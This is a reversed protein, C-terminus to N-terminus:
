NSRFFVFLTRTIPVNPVGFVRAKSSNFYDDSVSLEQCENFSTNKFVYKKISEKDWSLEQEFIPSAVSDPNTLEQPIWYQEGKERMEFFMLSKTKEDVTKLIDKAEAEPKANFMTHFVNLFLTIDYQDYLHLDLSVDGTSLDDAIKPYLSKADEINKYNKDFGKVSACKSSFFDVFYGTGCGIDLMTKKKLSNGFYGEAFDLIAAARDSCKRIVMANGDFPNNPNPQYLVKNPM